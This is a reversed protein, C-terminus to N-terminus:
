APREVSQPSHVDCDAPSTIINCNGCWPDSYILDCSWLYLLAFLRRKAECEWGNRIYRHSSGIFNNSKKLQWFQEASATCRIISPKGNQICMCRKRLAVYSRTVFLGCIVPFKFRNLTNRGYLTYKHFMTHLSGYTRWWQSRNDSTASRLWLYLLLMLCAWHCTHLGEHEWQKGLLSLQHDPTKSCIRPNGKFIELGGHHLRRARQRAVPFRALQRAVHRM